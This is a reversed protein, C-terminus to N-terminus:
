RRNLDVSVKLDFPRGPIGNIIIDPDLQPVSLYNKLLETAKGLDPLEYTATFVDDVPIGNVLVKRPKLDMTKEIEALKNAFRHLQDRAFRKESLVKEYDNDDKNM